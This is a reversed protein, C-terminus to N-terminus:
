TRAEEITVAIEERTVDDVVAMDGLARPLIFRLRHNSRKKDTMMAALIGDTSMESLVRTPLGIARLVNEIRAALPDDCLKRRAALRAACVLGIAVADGHRMEYNSLKELAHGFTHGLNLKAREGREFPDRAVIDVKVQIARSLLEINMISTFDTHDRIAASSRSNFIKKQARGREDADLNQALELLEFLEPDGIIAHKVVEAMGSRFEAGPLTALMEPDVIVALPQKFAGILNKGRPHDVAVKGGISADVMALLTTPMQVFNVGRLFTAAVFGTVDGVVGGGLAFIISHRDLQADILQDYIARVMDLTKFKEGDPIEILRPEFNNARLSDVLRAAHLNGVCPNTIVACRASFEALNSILAGTQSVLGAGVFIPYASDPSAVDIRNM